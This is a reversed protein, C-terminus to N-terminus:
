PTEYGGNDVIGAFDTEAETNNNCYYVGICCKAINTSTVDIGTGTNGDCRANSIDVIANGAVSIGDDGNNDSSVMGLQGFATGAISIGDGTCSDITAINIIFEPAGDVSVGDVGASSVDLINIKIRTGDGIYVGDGVPSTISLSNFSVDALSAHDLSVGDAGATAIVIDGFKLGSIASEIEIGKATPANIYLNGNHINSATVRLADDTSAYLQLNHIRSRAGSQTVIGTIITSWGTGTITVDAGVTIDETFTGALALINKAGTALADTLNPYINGSQAAGSVALADYANLANLLAINVASTSSAQTRAM